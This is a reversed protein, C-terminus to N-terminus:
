GLVDTESYPCDRPLADRYHAISAEEHEEFSDLADARADAYEDAILRGVEPALSPNKRLVKALKRRQTRITRAWGAKPESRLGHQIKLLHELIVGIASSVASREARGVAEIEEIVNDWDIADLDRTRLARAQARAWAWGDREYLSDPIDRTGDM